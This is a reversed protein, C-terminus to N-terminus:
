EHCEKIRSRYYWLGNEKKRKFIELTHKTNRWNKVECDFIWNTIWRNTKKM